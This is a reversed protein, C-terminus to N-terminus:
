VKQRGAFGEDVHHWHAIRTEGRTWCWFVLREDIEVANAVPPPDVSKVQGGLRAILKSCREFEDQCRKTEALHHEMERHDPNEEERVKAGWIMELATIRVHLDKLEKRLADIRAFVREVRPLLEDVEEITHVRPGPM